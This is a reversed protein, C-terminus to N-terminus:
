RIAIEQRDESLAPAGCAIRLILIGHEMEASIDEPKTDSPVVFSRSFMGFKRERVAYGDEPFVPKSVGSVQVHRVRNYICTSLSIKMDSKQLGPLELMVTLLQKEADYHIDSRIGFRRSEAAPFPGPM